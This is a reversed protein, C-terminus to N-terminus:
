KTAARPFPPAGVAIWRKVAEVEYRLMRPHTLPPMVPTRDGILLYYVESEDPDGPRVVGRSLLLNHNLIRIGGGAEAVSHCEHCHRQFIARVEDALESRPVVPPIPDQPDEPPFEPAGGEIWDKLIALEPASVRPRWNNDEEPPMTGDVIRQILRSHTADGPVVNRRNADLLSVRDLVHFKRDAKKDGHCEYCHRYLIERAQPAVDVARQRRQEAEAELKKREVYGRSAWAGAAGAVVLATLVVVAARLPHRRAWKLARRPPSLPRALIPRGDAFRRLDDALDAASAYRHSPKKELCKLCIARLDYPVAPQVGRLPFPEDSIVQRLTELLSGGRFPPRGTLCEYLIAGLAWVDTHPGIVATEGLAQEPAMYTPTGIVEGTATHGIDAGLRKALGFDTLKPTLSSPHLVFSSGSSSDAQPEDKTRRGEDKGLLINAPKLDRHVVGRAHAHHVARALVEVLEAASAPALPGAELKHALTGGAVYEMSFYSHGDVEGVDYIQVVNPHHLRAVAEAEARFRALQKPGAHIGAIMKLAVTRRLETQTAKYVVGMGGQDILAHLEYGLPRLKEVLHPPVVHSQAAGPLTGHPGIGLMAEMSEFAAIRARLEDAFEPREACLARVSPSEGRRRADQWRVLLEDIPDVTSM